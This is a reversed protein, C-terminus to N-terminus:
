LRPFFRKLLLLAPDRVLVADAGADSALQLMRAAQGLERQTLDINLTLYVRVNREHAARVAAVFQAQTFNRARRRANLSTLGLYVANAGADLAAQLAEIGGAPALLEPPRADMPKRPLQSMSCWTLTTRCDLRVRAPTLSTRFCRTKEIHM